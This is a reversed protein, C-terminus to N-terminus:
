ACIYRSAKVTTYFSNLQEIKVDFEQNYLLNIPDVLRNADM